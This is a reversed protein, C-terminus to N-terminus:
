PLPKIRINRYALPTSHNQLGIYGETRELGPHKKLVDNHDDLNADVVTTGNVTVQVHRKDCLIKMTQWEGAQKTVRPTAAVVNYISGTYQWPQLKTYASGHDDLVQIEMGSYAPDGSHPSRLFVGSNGNEPAKFELELEFNAYQSTTSIWGGGKGSTVLDGDLVKWSGEPAGVLEWGALDKGNFLPKWDDDAAQAASAIALGCLAVVIAAGTPVRMLRVRVCRM